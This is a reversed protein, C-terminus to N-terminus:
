IVNKIHAVSLLDPLKIGWSKLDNILKRGCEEVSLNINNM